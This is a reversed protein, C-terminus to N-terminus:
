PTSPRAATGHKAPTPTSILAPFLRNLLVILISNGGLEIQKATQLVPALLAHRNTVFSASIVRYSLNLCNVLM